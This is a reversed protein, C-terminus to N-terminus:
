ERIPWFKHDHHHLFASLNASKQQCLLSYYHFYYYGLVYYNLLTTETECNYKYKYLDYLLYSFLLYFAFVIYVTLTLLDCLFSEKESTSKLDHRCVVENMVSNQEYCRIWDRDDVSVWDHGNGLILQSDRGAYGKVKYHKNIRWHPNSNLVWTIETKDGVKIWSKRETNKEEESSRKKKCHKRRNGKQDEDHVVTILHPQKAARRRATIKILSTKNGPRCLASGPSGTGTAQQWNALGSSLM